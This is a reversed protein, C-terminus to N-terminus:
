VSAPLLITFTTGVGVESSVDMTGLMSGIIGYCVSLGLGAGKGVPKTTFFPTFIKNLNEPSIGCGNDKVLIEVTNNEGPGAKIMMKGGSTGHTELIADMANNFLNLIVQQLQTPDGHVPYTNEAIDQEISIGHVIAKQAVMDVIEPIFNQLDLDQPKPEDQRGFKLIARTIEGCRFIQLKIQDMSDEIEALSESEKIQGKEKMEMLLMEVLSHEGKVIQLPNNIEHAFGASMEGLEVLRSMGILQQNLRDKEIDMKEMRGVIRNTLYFAVVFIASGGVGMILIILYAASTLAKFADAKEQRVVLLWKKNQLWTTTCLCKEGKVDKNIITEIHTNSLPYNINDPCKDMLKGGSRPETQFLGNANLIYAEGTKGIRINKVINNFTVTDITARIVWKKGMKEQTVAIVFHPIQRYGLFIDSIYYGHKMVVKFWNADKYVRARLDFPGHYAVHVGAQNFVGLDVFAHSERQLHDFVTDLKESQSLDEYTYSNVIFNLDHKREKLFAEIMQRHDQVIRKMSATTSNELSTKFCYYGIGVALMFPILPVLLMSYFIVRRLTSFHDPMM